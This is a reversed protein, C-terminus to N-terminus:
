ASLAEYGVQNRKLIRIKKTLKEKETMLTACRSKYKDVIKRSHNVLRKEKDLQQQLDIVQDELEEKTTTPQQVKDKLTKLENEHGCTKTENIMAVTAQSITNIASLISCVRVEAQSEDHLSSTKPTVFPIGEYPLKKTSAQEFIIPIPTMRQKKLLEM